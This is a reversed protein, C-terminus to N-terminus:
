KLLVERVVFVELLVSKDLIDAYEIRANPTMGLYLHNPGLLVTAMDLSEVLTLSTHNGTHTVNSSYRIYKDDVKAVFGKTIM